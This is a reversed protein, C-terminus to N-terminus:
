SFHTLSLSIPVNVCIKKLISFSREIPPILFVKIIIKINLSVRFHNGRMDKLGETIHVEVM